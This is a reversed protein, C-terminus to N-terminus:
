EGTWCVPCYALKHMDCFLPEEPEEPQDSVILNDIRTILKELDDARTNDDCCTRLEEQLFERVDHLVSPDNTLKM